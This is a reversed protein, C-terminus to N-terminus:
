DILERSTLANKLLNVAFCDVESFSHYGYILLLLQCFLEVAIFLLSQLQYQIVKCTMKSVCRGARLIACVINHSELL